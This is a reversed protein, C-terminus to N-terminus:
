SRARREQFADDIVSISIVMAIGGARELADAIQSAGIVEARDNRSSDLLIHMGPCDGVKRIEEIVSRVIPLKMGIDLMRKILYLDFAEKVSYRRISGSGTADHVPRVLETRSWYDAQRFTIGVLKCVEGTSYTQDVASMM